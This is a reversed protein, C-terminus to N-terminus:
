RRDLALAGKDLDKIIEHRKLGGKAKMNLRGAPAPGPRIGFLQVQPALTLSLTSHCLGTASFVIDHWAQHHGTRSQEM